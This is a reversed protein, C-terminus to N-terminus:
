QDRQRRWPTLPVYTAPETPAHRSVSILGRRKLIDVANQVTRRSQGTREALEAHSFSARGDARAAVIALYVLFASPKHDHGVLDAMLTDLVYRDLRYSQADM